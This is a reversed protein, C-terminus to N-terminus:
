LGNDKDNSDDKKPISISPPTQPPPPAFLPPKEVPDQGMKRKGILTCYDTINSGDGSLVLLATLGSDLTQLEHGYAVIKEVVLNTTIPPMQAVEGHLKVHPIIGTFREGLYVSGACRGM